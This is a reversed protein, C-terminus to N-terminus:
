LAMMMGLRFGGTVVVARATSYLSSIRFASGGPLLKLGSM